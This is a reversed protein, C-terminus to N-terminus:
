KSEDSFSITELTKLIEDLRAPSTAIFTFSIMYGKHPLALFAQHITGGPKQRKLLMKTFEKESIVVSSPGEVLEYRTPGEILQQALQNLFQDTTVPQPIVSLDVAMIGVM